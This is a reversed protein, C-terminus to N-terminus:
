KTLASEKRLLTLLCFNCRCKERRSLVHLGIVKMPLMFPRLLPGYQLQTCNCPHKIMKNLNQNILQAQSIGCEIYNVQNPGM